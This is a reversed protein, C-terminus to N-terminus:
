ELVEDARALLTDPVRLGLAKATKLNLYLNFKSVQQVPLYWRSGPFRSGATPTLSMSNSGLPALPLWCRM